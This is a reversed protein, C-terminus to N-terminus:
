NQNKSRVFTVNYYNRSPSYFKYTVSGDRNNVKNLGMKMSCVINKFKKELFHMTKDSRLKLTKYFENWQATKTSREVVYQSLIDNQVIGNSVLVDVIKKDIVIDTHAEQSQMFQSSFWVSMGFLFLVVMYVKICVNMKKEKSAVVCVRWNILM